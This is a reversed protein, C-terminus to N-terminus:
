TTAPPRSRRAAPVPLSKTGQVPFLADIACIFDAAPTTKSFIAAEPFCYDCHEYVFPSNHFAM